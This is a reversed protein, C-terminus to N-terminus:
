FLFKALNSVAYNLFVAVLVFRKAAAKVCYLRLVFVSRCVAAGGAILSSSRSFFIQYQFLQNQKVVSSM